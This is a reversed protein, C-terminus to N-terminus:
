RGHARGNEAGAGPARRRGTGPRATRRPHGVIWAWGAARRGHRRRVSTTPWRWGASLSFGPAPAVWAFSRPKPFLTTGAPAHEGARDPMWAQSAAAPWGHGAIRM